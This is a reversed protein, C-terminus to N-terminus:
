RVPRLIKMHSEQLSLTSNRTEPDCSPEFPPEMQTRNVGLHVEWKLGVKIRILIPTGNSTFFYVWGLHLDWKFFYIPAGNSFTFPLEM